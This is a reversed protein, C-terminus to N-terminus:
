GTTLDSGMPFSRDRSCCTEHPRPTRFSSMSPEAWSIPSNTAPFFHILLGRRRPVVVVGNTDSSSSVVGEPRTADSM